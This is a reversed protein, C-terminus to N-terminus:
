VINHRYKSKHNEVVFLGYKAPDLPIEQCKSVILQGLVDFLLLEECKLYTAIM